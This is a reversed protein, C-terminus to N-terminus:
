TCLAAPCLAHAHSSILLRAPGQEACCPLRCVAGCRPCPLGVGGKNSSGAPGPTSLRRLGAAPPTALVSPGSSATPAQPLSGLSRRLPQQEQKSGGAAHSSALRPRMKGGAVSASAAKISSVSAAAATSSCVSSAKSKLTQQQLQSIGEAATAAARGEPCDDPGGRRRQPPSECHEAADGDLALPAHAHHPGRGGPLKSFLPPVVLGKAAAAVGARPPEAAAPAQLRAAQMSSGDAADIDSAGMLNRPALPPSGPQQQQEAAAQHQEGAKNSGGTSSVRSAQKVLLSPTEDPGERKPPTFGINSFDGAAGPAAPAQPTCPSPARRPMQQLQPPSLGPARLEQSGHTGALAVGGQQQQEGRPALLAAGSPGVLPMGALALRPVPGAAAAPRPRAAGAIGAAAAARAEEVALSAPTHKYLSKYRDKIVPLVFTSSSSCEVKSSSSAAAAAMALRESRPGPKASLGAPATPLIRSGGAAAAPLSRAARAMPSAPRGFAGGGSLAKAPSRPGASDASARQMRAIHRSEASTGTGAAAQPRRRAAAAAASSGAAPAAATRPMPNPTRSRQAAAASVVHQTFRSQAKEASSM